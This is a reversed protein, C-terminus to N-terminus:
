LYGGTDEVTETKRFHKPAPCPDGDELGWMHCCRMYKRWLEVRMACKAPQGAGAGSRCKHASVHEEYAAKANLIDAKSTM